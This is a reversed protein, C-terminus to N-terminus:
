KEMALAKAITLFRAREPDADVIPICLRSDHGFPCCHAIWQGQGYRTGREALRFGAQHLAKKMAWSDPNPIWNSGHCNDCWSGHEGMVNDLHKPCSRNVGCASCRQWDQDDPSDSYAVCYPPCPCPLRMLEPSLIPLKGRGDCRDCCYSVGQVNVINPKWDPCDREASVIRLLLERNTLSEVKTTM